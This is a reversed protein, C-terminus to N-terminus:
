APHREVTMRGDSWYADFYPNDYMRPSQPHDGLLGKAWNMLAPLVDRALAEAAAAREDAAVVGARIFLRTDDEFQNPLWFTAYLVSHGSQPVWYNLVTHCELGASTMAAELMSTKLVYSLGRRLKPKQVDIM